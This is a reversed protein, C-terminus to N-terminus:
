PQEEGAGAEASPRSAGTGDTGQQSPTTRSPAQDGSARSPTEPGSEEAGSAGNERLARIAERGQGIDPMAQGIAAEELGSLAELLQKVRPQGTPLWEQVVARAHGISQRWASPQGQQLAMRAQQLSSDLSLQVLAAQQANLPLPRDGDQRQIRIPLSAFFSQWGNDADSGASAEGSTVDQVAPAVAVEPVLDQLAALKLMLAQTDVHRAGRVAEIDRALARRAPLVEPDDLRALTRDAVQLLRETATLDATLLLREEALRALTEAENLLWKRQGGQQFEALVKDRQESRQVVDDVKQEVRSLGSTVEARVASIDEERSASVDSLSGELAGLRDDLKQWAEWGFVGLGAVLVLLVVLLLATVNVGGSARGHFYIGM